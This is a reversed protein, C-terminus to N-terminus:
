TELIMIMEFYPLKAYFNMPILALLFKRLIAFTANTKTYKTMTAPATTRMVPLPMPQGSQGHGVHCSGCPDTLNVNDVHGAAPVAFLIAAGLLSTIVLRTKVDIHM